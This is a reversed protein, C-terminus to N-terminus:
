AFVFLHFYKLSNQCFYKRLKHSIAITKTGNLDARFLAFLCRSIPATKLIFQSPAASQLNTALNLHYYFLKETLTLFYNVFFKFRWM